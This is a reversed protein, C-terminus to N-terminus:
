ANRRRRSITAGALCLAAATLLAAYIHMNYDDGTNASPSSMVEPSPTAEPSATVEPAPTAEPSPTVEQTPEPEPETKTNVFTLSDKENALITYTTTTVFADNTLAEAAEASITVSIIENSVNYGEPSQTETLTLATSEGAAPLYDALAEDATSIAFSGGEYTSVENGDSDTLTFVAGSLANGDQDTKTITVSSDSVESSTNKADTFTVESGDDVTVSYVTDNIYTHDSLTESSEASIVVRAAQNSVLYGSPAATEYLNFAASQGAAPLYAALAEDDASIIFDGGEYAAIEEGSEDYLTFVAGSLANGDQDTKHVTIQGYEGTYERTFQTIDVSSEVDAFTAGNTGLSVPQGGHYKTLNITNKSITVLTSNQSTKLYGPTLSTYYINSKVSVVQRNAGLEGTEENYYEEDYAETVETDLGAYLAPKNTDQQVNMSSGAAFYYETPDNTHNHGHLFLVDRVVPIDRGEVYDSIGEVGTAAYNLAENWYVAGNNDGRLAQIPAHCLVLIPVTKDLGDVWSKFSAASASARSSGAENEFVMEYFSICYIYYAPTGDNNYGEFIQQSPEEDICKVIDTDKDIVSEDHDAWVISVNTNDVAPFVDQVLGLIDSSYYEPHDGGKSGVMDGILSVYEMTGSPNNVSGPLGNMATDISDETAHFDSAFALYHVEGEEYDAYATYSPLHIVTLFFMFVSLISIISGSRRLGKFM